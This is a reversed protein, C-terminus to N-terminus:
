ADHIPVGQLRLKYLEFQKEPNAKKFGLMTNIDECRFHEDIPKELCGFRWWLSWQSANELNANECEFCKRYM